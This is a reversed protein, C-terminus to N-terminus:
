HKSTLWKYAYNQFEKDTPQRKNKATFDAVFTKAEAFYHQYMFYAPQKVNKDDILWFGTQNPGSMENNYLEWYLVFPTGWKIAVASVERIRDSQQQPNYSRAPAGFEGIFVRKEPLGPKPKLRSQMFDLAAPLDHNL